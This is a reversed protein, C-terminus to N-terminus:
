DSWWGPFIEGDSDHRPGFVIYELGDPGGEFQRTVGPSVRIADLETLSIDAVPLVETMGYPTHAEAEPLVELVQHLLRAPVPAGASMLMRVSRLDARQEDDLEGM